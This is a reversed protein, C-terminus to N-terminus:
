KVMKKLEDHKHKWDCASRSYSEVDDRLDYVMIWLRRIKEKDNLGHCSTNAINFDDIM